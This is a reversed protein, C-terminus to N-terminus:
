FDPMRPPFVAKSPPPPPSYTESLYALQTLPKYSRPKPTFHPWPWFNLIWFGVLYRLTLSQLWSHLYLYCVRTSTKKWDEGVPAREPTLYTEYRVRVSKNSDSGRPSFYYINASDIWLPVANYFGSNTALASIFRLKQPVTLFTVCLNSLPLLPPFDVNQHILVSHHFLPSRKLNINQMPFDTMIGSKRIRIIPLYANSHHRRQM